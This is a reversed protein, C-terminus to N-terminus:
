PLVARLRYFRANAQPDWAIDCPEAAAQAMFEALTVWPGGAVTPSEEVVYTTGPTLQECSLVWRDAHVSVENIAPTLFVVHALTDPEDPPLERNGVNDTAVTWFAYSAGVEGLFWAETAHTEAIWSQAPGGDRAVFVDYHAVGAGHEGDTGSWAVKFWSPVDDAPSTVSSAPPQADVRNSVAPTLISPNTGLTPDFTIEAGNVLETGDEAGAAVRVTFRLTGEGRRSADNPPLFGALPDEPLFGTDPDVSQLSWTLLGTVADLDAVVSVPYPDSNVRATAAFHQRGRPVLLTVDNFAISELELSTWDLDPSLPDTVVVEQAPADADPANEFHIEYALTIGPAVCNDAGQGGPGVKDNPDRSAVRRVYAQYVLRRRPDAMIQALQERGAPDRWPRFKLDVKNPNHLVPKQRHAPDPREGYKWRLELEAVDYANQLTRNERLGGLLRQSFQGGSKDGGFAVTGCETAAMGVYEARKPAMLDNFAAAHCSDNILYFRGPDVEDVVSEVDGITVVGDDLLLVPLQSTGWRSVGHGSYILVLEDDADVDGKRVLIADLFEQRTLTDDESGLRDRLFVTQDEPVRLEELIYQRYNDHDVDAAPLNKDGAPYRKSYDAVTIVVFYTRQVGDGQPPPTPSRGTPGAGGPAHGLGLADLDPYPAMRDEWMPGVLWEGQINALSQVPLNAVAIAALEERLVGYFEGFTEGWRERQQQLYGSWVHPEVGSPRPRENWRLPAPDQAAAEGPTVELFLPVGAVEAPTLSVTVTAEEQPGLSPLRSQRPLGLVMLHTGWAWENGIAAMGKVGSSRLHILPLPLDILGRNGYTIRCTFDRPIRVVQPATLHAYFEAQGGPLVEFLRPRLVRNGQREAEIGAPGPPFDRLDFTAYVTRSDLAHTRLAPRREESSAAVRYLTDSALLGGELRVTVEGSNGVQNPHVAQVGFELPVAQIAYSRRVGRVYQAVVAVYHVVASSVTFDLVPVRSGPVPSAADFRTPCPIYDVGVYLEVIDDQPWGGALGIGPRGSGHTLTPQYPALECVVRVDAGPTATLRYVDVEEVEEFGAEWPPDGMVLEPLVVPDVAQVAARFAVAWGLVLAISARM